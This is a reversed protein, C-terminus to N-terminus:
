ITSDNLYIRVRDCFLLESLIDGCWAHYLTALWGRRYIYEFLSYAPSAQKIMARLVMMLVVACTRFRLFPM